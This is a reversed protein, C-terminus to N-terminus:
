CMAILRTNNREYIESPSVDALLNLGKIVKPYQESNIAITDHGLHGFNDSVSKLGLSEFYKIAPTGEPEGHVYQGHGFHIKMIQPDLIDIEGRISEIDFKRVVLIILDALNDLIQKAEAPLQTPLAQFSRVTTKGLKKFIPKTEHGDNSLYFNIKTRKELLYKEESVKLRNEQFTKALLARRDELLKIQANLQEDEKQYVAKDLDLKAQRRDLEQAQTKLESLVEPTIINQAKEEKRATSFM